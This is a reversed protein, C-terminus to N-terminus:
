PKLAKVPSNSDINVAPITSGALTVREAKCFQAETATITKVVSHKTVSRGSFFSAGAIGGPPIPPM